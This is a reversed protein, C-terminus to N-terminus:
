FKTWFILGPQSLPAYVVDPPEQQPWSEGLPGQHLFLPSPELQLQFAAFPAKSFLCHRYGPVWTEPLGWSAPFAAEPKHQM